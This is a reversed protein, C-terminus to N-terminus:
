EAGNFVDAVNKTHLFTGVPELHLNDNCLMNLDIYKHFTFKFYNFECM